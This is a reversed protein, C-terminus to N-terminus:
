GFYLHDGKRNIADVVKNITADSDCIITSKSASETRIEVKGLFSIAKLQLHIYKGSSTPKETEVPMEIKETEVEIKDEETSGGLLQRTGIKILYIKVSILIMLPPLRTTSVTRQM